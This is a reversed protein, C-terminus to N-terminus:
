EEVLKDAFDPLLKEFKKRSGIPIVIQELSPCMSFIKAPYPYSELDNYDIEELSLPLKVSRLRACNSFATANIKTVGEPIVINKLNSCGYFTRWPIVKIAKSLVITKLNKCDSFTCGGLFEDGLSKVTSPLTISEINPCEAFAGSKITTVTKPITISTIESRMFAGHDITTVTYYDGQDKVNEPIVLAGKAKKCEVSVTSSSTIRCDLKNGSPLTISFDQANALICFCIIFITSWFKM